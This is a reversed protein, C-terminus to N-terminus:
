KGADQPKAAGHEEHGGMKMKSMMDAMMPGCMAKHHEILTTVLEAIADTKAAGSAENMTKVLADIKADAAMMGAMDHSPMQTAPGSADPKQAEHQDHQHAAEQASVPAPAAALSACLGVAALIARSRM